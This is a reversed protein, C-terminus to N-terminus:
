KKHVNVSRVGCKKELWGLLHYISGPPRFRIGFMKFEIIEILMGIESLTDMYGINFTAPGAQIIGSIWTSYGKANLKAVEKDKNKVFFGLHHIVVRGDPDVHQGYFDSGEGPELLELDLGCHSAFGAKCYFRRSEGREVWKKVDGSMIFFPGIGMKELQAAASEVDPVVLGLQDIPPLDHKKRFDYALKNVAETFNEQKLLDELLFM